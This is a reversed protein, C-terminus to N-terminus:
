VAEAAGLYRRELEMEARSRRRARRRRDKSGPPRGIHKGELRARAHGARTRESIQEREMEALAALIAFVFRGTPTTTDIPQTTCVFDVGRAGMAALGNHAHLASRFVRDLKWVVIVDVQRARCAQWLRRWAPLGILRGDPGRGSGTLAPAFEVYEGVVQWERAAAFARLAVLQTEPNQDGGAHSVRADLAARAV